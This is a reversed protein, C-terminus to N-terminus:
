HRFNKKNNRRSHSELNVHRRHVENLKTEVKKLEAVTAEQKSSTQTLKAKLEEMEFQLHEISQKLDKNKDELAKGRTKYRELDPSSELLKHLKEEINSRKANTAVSCQLCGRQLIETSDEEYTQM